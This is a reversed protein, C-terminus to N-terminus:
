RSDNRLAEEYALEFVHPHHKLVYIMAETMINISRIDQFLEDIHDPQTSRIQDKSEESLTENILNNLENM